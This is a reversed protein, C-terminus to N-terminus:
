DIEEYDTYEEDDADLKTQEDGSKLSKPIFLKYAFYILLGYILLKIM